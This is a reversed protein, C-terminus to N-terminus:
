SVTISTRSVREPVTRARVRTSSRTTPRTPCSPNQVYASCLSRPSGLYTTQDTASDPYELYPMTADEQWGRARRARALEYSAQVRMWHDATGWGPAELARAMNLTLYCDRDPWARGFMWGSWTTSELIM